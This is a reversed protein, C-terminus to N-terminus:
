GWKLIANCLLYMFLCGKRVYTTKKDTVLFTSYEALKKHLHVKGSLEELDTQLFILVNLKVLLVNFSITSLVFIILKISLCEGFDSHHELRAGYGAGCWAPQRVGWVWTQSIDGVFVYMYTGLYTVHVFTWWLALPCLYMICRGWMHLKCVMFKMSIDYPLLNQLILPPYIHFIHHAFLGKASTTKTKYKEKNCIVRLFYSAASPSDKSCRFDRYGNPFDDIWLLPALDPNLSINNYFPVFLCFYINLYAHLM